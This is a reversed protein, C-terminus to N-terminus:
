YGCYCGTAKEKSVRSNEFKQTTEIKLGGDNAAAGNPSKKGIFPEDVFM